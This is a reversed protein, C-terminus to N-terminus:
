AGIGARFGRWQGGGGLHHPRSGSPQVRGVRERDGQPPGARRISVGVQPFAVDSLSRRKGRSFFPRGRAHRAPDAGARSGDPLRRDGRPCQRQALGAEKGYVRFVARASEGGRGPVGGVGGSLRGWRFVLPTEGGAGDLLPLGVVRVPEAGGGGRRCRFADGGGRGRARSASDTRDM